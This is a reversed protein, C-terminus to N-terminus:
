RQTIKLNGQNNGDITVVSIVGYNDSSLNDFTDYNTSTTQQKDVFLIEYYFYLNMKMGKIRSILGKYYTDYESRDIPIVIRGTFNIYNETKYNKIDGDYYESFVSDKKNSSYYNQESFRDIVEGQYKTNIIEGYFYKEFDSLIQKSQKSDYKGGYIITGDKLEVVNRVRGEALGSGTCGVTDNCVGFGLNACVSCTSVDRKIDKREYKEFSSDQSYKSNIYKLANEENEEKQQREEIYTCGSLLFITIILISVLFLSKLYKM